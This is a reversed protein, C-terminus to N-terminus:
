ITNHPLSLQPSSVYAPSQQPSPTYLIPFQQSSAANVPPQMLYKSEIDNVISFIKTKVYHQDTPSFNKVTTAMLSFFSKIPHPHSKSGETKKEILYKM